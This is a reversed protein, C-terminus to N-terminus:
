PLSMMCYFKRVAAAYERRLSIPLSKDSLQQKIQGRILSAGENAFERFKSVESELVAIEIGSKSSAKAMDGGCVLAAALAGQQLGDLTSWYELLKPVVQPLTALMYSRLDM